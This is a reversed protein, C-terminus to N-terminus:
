WMGSRFDVGKGDGGSGDGDGGGGKRAGEYGRILLSFSLALSISSRTRSHKCVGHCQWSSHNGTRIRVHTRVRSIYVHSLLSTDALEDFRFWTDSAPGKNGRFIWRIISHEVSEKHKQIKYIFYLRYSLAKLGEVRLFPPHYWLKKFNM